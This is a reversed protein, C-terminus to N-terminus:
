QPILSRNIWAETRDEDPYLIVGHMPRDALWWPAESIIEVEVQDDDWLTRITGTGHGRQGNIDMRFSSEAEGEFPRSLDPLAPQLFLEFVPVERGFQEVKAYVLERDVFRYEFRNLGFDGVVRDEEVTWRETRSTPWGPKGTDPSTAGDPSPRSLFFGDDSAITEWSSVAFGGQAQQLLFAMPVIGLLRKIDVDEGDMTVQVRNKKGFRELDLVAAVAQQSHGMTSGNRRSPPSDPLTGEFQIETTVGDPNRYSLEVDVQSGESQDHVGVPGELRPVPVEAVLSELRTVDSVITQVGDPRSDKAMWIPGGATQIRAYEHMDWGTGKTVLVLDLDYYLGFIQFPLVPHSVRPEDTYGVGSARPHEYPVLEATGIVPGSPLM